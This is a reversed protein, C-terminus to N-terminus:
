KNTKEMDLLFKKMELGGAYGTLSGDKGIVRHCPVIIPIPNVHNAMGAARVAKPSGAKLAIDSYSRTEGYPIEALAQWCKKQFDTGPMDLPIDFERRAGSFYEELQIKTKALVDDAGFEAVPGFKVAALRGSRACLGLIGVPTEVNLASTYECTKKM